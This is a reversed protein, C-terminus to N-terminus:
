GDSRRALVVYGVDHSSDGSLLWGRYTYLSVAKAAGPPASEPEPPTDGPDTQIEWAWVEQAWGADSSNGDDNPDHSYLCHGATSIQLGDISSGDCLYFCDDGLVDFRVLLKHTTKANMSQAALDSQRQEQGPVPSHPDLDDVAAAEEPTAPTAEASRPVEPQKSPVSNSRGESELRPPTAVERGAVLDYGVLSQSEASGSEAEPLVRGSPQPAPRATRLIELFEKSESSEPEQEQSACGQAPVMSVAILVLGALALPAAGMRARKATLKMGSRM